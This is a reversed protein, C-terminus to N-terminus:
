LFFYKCEKNKRLQNQLPTQDVEVNGGQSSWDPELSDVPLESPPWGDQQAAEELAATENSWVIHGEHHQTAPPSTWLMNNSSSQVPQHSSWDGISIQYSTNAVTEGELYGNQFFFILIKNSCIFHCIKNINYLM